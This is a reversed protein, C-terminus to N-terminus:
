LALCQAVRFFARTPLAVAGRLISLAYRADEDPSTSVFVAGAAPSVNIAVALTDNRPEADGKTAVVARLVHPGDTGPARLRVAASAEGFPALEPVAATTVAESGGISFTVTGAGAGAGGAVVTARVPITDGAVATRPADLTALAADRRSPRNVVEIESRAPLASLAEPDDIEGDTVLLLPRGAALARDVAPRVLSRTDRPVAPARGARLSDGILFVSDANARRVRELANRYPGSDGGRNWSKSVDLAAFPRVSESRRAPADLLLAVLCAAAAARLAAPVLRRGGSAGYQVLALAVGAVAALVWVM